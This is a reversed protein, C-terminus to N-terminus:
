VWKIRRVQAYICHLIGNGIVMSCIYILAIHVLRSMCKLEHMLQFTIDILVYIGPCILVRM